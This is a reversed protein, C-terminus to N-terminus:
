TRRAEQEQLLKRAKRSMGELALWLMLEQEQEEQEQLSEELEQPEELQTRRTSNPWDPMVSQATNQGGVM